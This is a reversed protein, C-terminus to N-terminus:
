KCILASEMFGAFGTDSANGINGNLPFRTVLQRNHLTLKGAFNGALRRLDFAAMWFKLIECKSRLKEMCM